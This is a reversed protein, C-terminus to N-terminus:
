MSSEQATSINVLILPLQILNFQNDITVNIFGSLSLSFSGVVLPGALAVMTKLKVTSKVDIYHTIIDKWAGIIICSSHTVTGVPVDPDIIPGFDVRINMGTIVLPVSFPNTLQISSRLTSITDR